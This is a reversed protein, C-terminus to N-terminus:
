PAPGANFLQLEIAGEIERNRNFRCCVNGANRAALGPARDSAARATTNEAATGPCSVSQWWRSCGKRVPCRQEAVLTILRDVAQAQLDPIVFLDVTTGASDSRRQRGRAM